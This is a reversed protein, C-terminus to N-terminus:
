LNGASEAGARRPSNSGHAWVLEVGVLILTVTLVLQLATTSKVLLVLDRFQAEAPNMGYLAALMVFGVAYFYNRIILNM